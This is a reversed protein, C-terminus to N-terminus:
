LYIINEIFICFGCYVTIFEEGSIIKINNPRVKETLTHSFKTWTTPASGAVATERERRYKFRRREQLLLTADHKVIGARKASNYIDRVRVSPIADTMGAIPTSKLTKTTESMKAPKERRDNMRKSSEVESPGITASVAVLDEEDVLFSSDHLSALPHEWQTKGTKRNYYFKKAPRILSQARVWNQSCELYKEASEAKGDNSIDMKTNDSLVVGFYALIIQELQVQEEDRMPMKPMSLMSPSSLQPIREPSITDSSWSTATKRSHKLALISSEEILRETDGLCRLGDINHPDIELLARFAARAENLSGMKRFTAAM